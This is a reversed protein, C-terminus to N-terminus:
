FQAHRFTANGQAAPPLTAKFDGGMRVASLIAEAIKDRLGDGLSGSRLMEGVLGEADSRGVEAVLRLAGDDGVTPTLKVEILGNGEAMENNTERGFQTACAWREFHLQAVVLGAPSLPAL